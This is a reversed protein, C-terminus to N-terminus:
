FDLRAEAGANVIEASLRDFRLRLAVILRDVPQQQLGRADGLIREALKM